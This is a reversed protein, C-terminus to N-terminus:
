AEKQLRGKELLDIEQKLEKDLFFTGFPVLSLIFAKVVKGFKWSYNQWCMILLYIFAVFLIGHIWGNWTVFQPMDALYKLPMSIFLLVVYSIGEIFSIMRFNKLVGTKKETNM